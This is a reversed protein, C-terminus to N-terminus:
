KRNLVKEYAELYGETMAEVSFLKEVRARCVEPNIKEIDDLKKVMESVNKGTFGVEGEKIIEPISGLPTGVVPTGCAMSETMVLGFPERWRNPMLTAYANQYLKVKEALSVEGVFEVNMGDIYPKVAKNFYEEEDPNVRTVLKLKMGFKKAVKIAIDPGKIDAARGLWILYNRTPKKALSYLSMDIGNYVTGVWNLDKADKQQDDSISIFNNTKNFRRYLAIQEKRNVPGHFTTVVPTKLFRTLIFLNYDIHNHIIDYKGDDVRLMDLELAQYLNPTGARRSEWLAEPAVVKVKAKTKSDGSAYVTVNHGSALLGKAINAVVLETGGYGVPPIAEFQPAVLAVKM